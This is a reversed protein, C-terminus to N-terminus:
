RGNRNKCCAKNSHSSSSVPDGCEGPQQPLTPADADFDDTVKLKRTSGSSSGAGLGLRSAVRAGWGLQNVGSSDGLTRLPQQQKSGPESSSRRVVLMPTEVSIMVGHRSGHEGAPAGAATSATLATEEDDHSSGSAGLLFHQEDVVVEEEIHVSALRRDIARKTYVASLVVVILASVACIVIVAIKAALRSRCCFVVCVRAHAAAPQNHEWM